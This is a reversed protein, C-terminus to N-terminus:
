DAKKIIFRLAYIVIMVGAMTFWFITYYLHNNNPYWPENNPFQADMKHSAHLARFMFPLVNELNKDRAIEETDPKYWVDNQPDNEPTFSNWTPRYALGEFWVKKGSLHYIPLEDLPYQTWGMDILVTGQPTKLPAILDKGIEGDRTKPGILLAKEPLFIGELRGFGFMEDEFAKIDLPKSREGGYAADLRAIIETKWALRYVQWTGLGCLIAVGLITLLTPLAPPKQLAIKM